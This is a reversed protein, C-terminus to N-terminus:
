TPRDTDSDKTATNTFSCHRSQYGSQPQFGIFGSDASAVYSLRMHGTRAASYAIARVMQTSNNRASHNLSFHNMPSLNTKQIRSM